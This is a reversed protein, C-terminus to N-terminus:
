ANFSRQTNSNIKYKNGPLSIIAGSTELITLCSLIKNPNTDYFQRKIYDFTIEKDEFIELIQAVDKDLIPYFTKKFSSVSFNTATDNNEFYKLDSETVLDKITDPYKLKVADLIDKYDLVPYAGDFFLRNSGESQPIDINAPVVYVEKNQALAHNATILAGSRKPAQTVVCWDSLASLIRNREQYAYQTQSSNPLHESILACNLYSINPMKEKFRSTMIGNPLVLIANGDAKLASKYASEDIGSAIGTVITCGCLALAGSIQGTVRKGYVTCERTGVITVKPKSMAKNYNGYTFLVCPPNEIELLSKPYREDDIDIIDIRNEQCIMLLENADHLDKNILKCIDTESLGKIQELDKPSSEYILKINKFHNYVKFTKRSDDNLALKLWIWLLANYEEM